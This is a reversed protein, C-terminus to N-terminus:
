KPGLLKPPRHVVKCDSERQTRRLDACILKLDGGFKRTHEMRHRRVEEVTPDSKVSM